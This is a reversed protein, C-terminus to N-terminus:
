RFAGLHASVMQLLRLAAEVKWSVAFWTREGIRVGKANWNRQIPSQIQSALFLRSPYGDRSSPCLLADEHEPKCGNPLSLKEILIFPMGGENFTKLENGFARKLEEVESPNLEM